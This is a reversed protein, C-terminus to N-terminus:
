CASAAPRGEQRARHGAAAGARRREARRHGRVLRAAPRDAVRGGGAEQGRLVHHRDRPRPLRDRGADADLRVRARRGPRRGARRPQRAAARRQGARAVVGTPADRGFTVSRPAGAQAAAATAKFPGVDCGSFMFELDGDWRYGAGFDDLTTRVCGAFGVSSFVVEGGLPGLDGLKIQASADVNFASKFLWGSIDADAEFSGDKYGLKGGFAVYGNTRLEFFASGVPIRVLSVRGDARLIAPDTLTFTLDGDVSVAAVGGIQPGANITM